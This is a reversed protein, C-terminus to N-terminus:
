NENVKTLVEEWETYTADLIKRLEQEKDSLKQLSIYDSMIDPNGMEQEVECIQQEIEEIKKECEQIKRTLKQKLRKEEKAMNYDEKAKSVKSVSKDEVSLSLNNKYEKYFSYNGSVDIVGNKTLEIVRTALKDIFYRDHSVIFLTGDYNLLVKELVEKSNIDLHNTPEDLLLFNAGNLMIKCLVVRGKEGGSLSAIDRKVSDGKFLFSALANRIETESFGETDYLVEKYVTNTDNLGELEQSYYDVDVNTGINIDGSLPSVKGLIIKFLTSKGIGNEGLLFVREGRIIDFAVERFLDVGPYAMSVNHVSLVRTGSTRKPKFSFGVSDPLRSPKDIKVMRDIVKQRSEAAVINRQRNWQKQQRIFAEMKAIEKQQNDHQRQQIDRDIEKKAAYASYNGDYTIVTSNEIEMIKNVTQDLFFRDHSILIICGNYSNIFRELWEVSEIDLHNTPEDLLLIRPEQNLLKALRLRTKQGGSLLSVKKSFDNESFGLGKLIGKARSFYEYGGDDKFQNSVSAHKKILAHLKDENKEILMEQELESLKREMSILDAFSELVEELITKSSDSVIIQDLHLISTNSAVDIKGLDPVYDGVILKFLTTKGAGNVGVLGVKDRDGIAFSTNNLIYRDGFSFSVDTARISIM